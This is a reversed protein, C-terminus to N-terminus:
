SNARPVPKRGNFIEPIVELLEKGHGSCIESYGKNVSARCIRVLALVPGGPDTAQLVHDVAALLEAFENRDGVSKPLAPLDEGVASETPADLKGFVKELEALDDPPLRKLVHLFSLAKTAEVLSLLPVLPSSPEMSQLYRLAMGLAVFADARGTGPAAASSTEGAGAGDEAPESGPGTITDDLGANLEGLWARLEGLSLGSGGNIAFGSEITELSKLCAAILAKREARAEPGFGALAIRIEDLSPAIGLIMWKKPNRGELVQGVTVADPRGEEILPARCFRSRVQSPGEARGFPVALDNLIGVQEFPDRADDPKPHLSFGYKATLGAILRLGTEFGPLGEFHTASATWFLAAELHKSSDVLLARSEAEVKNWDPEERLNQANELLTRISDITPADDTAATRGDSGCPDSGDLPLLLDDIALNM